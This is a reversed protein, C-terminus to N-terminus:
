LLVRSDIGYIKLAFLAAEDLISALKRFITQPLIFVQLSEQKGNLRRATNEPPSTIVIDM